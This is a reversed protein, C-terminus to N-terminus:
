SRAQVLNDRVWRRFEKIWPTEDMEDCKGIWEVMKIIAAQPFFQTTSQEVYQGNPQLAHITLEVAM